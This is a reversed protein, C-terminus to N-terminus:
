IKKLLEDKKQNYEQETLAGAQYLKFLQEITLTSTVSQNSDRSETTAASQAGVGPEGLILKIQNIWVQFYNVAPAECDIVLTQAIIDHLTQKKLTLANMLYGICFIMGSIFSAFYRIFSQKLTIRAGSESIVRIGMLAKGPTAQLTSAEFIPKYILTILFSGVFPVIYNIVINPLILILGDLIFAVFRRWFGTYQYSPQNSSPQNFNITNQISDM